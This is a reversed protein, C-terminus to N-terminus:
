QLSIQNSFNMLYMVTTTLTIRCVFLLYSNFDLRQPPFLIDCVNIQSDAITCKAEAIRKNDNSSFDKWCARRSLNVEQELTRAM